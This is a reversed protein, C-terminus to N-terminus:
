PDMFLSLFAQICIKQGLVFAQKNEHQATEGCLGLRNEPYARASGQDYTSSHSICEKLLSIGFM